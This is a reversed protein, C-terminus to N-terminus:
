RVHFYKKYTSIHKNFVSFTKKMTKPVMSSAIKIKNKQLEQIINYSTAKKKKKKLSYITEFQHM